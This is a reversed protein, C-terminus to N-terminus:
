VRSQQAIDHEELEPMSDDSESDTGSGSENKVDEVTPKEVAETPMKIDPFLYCRM